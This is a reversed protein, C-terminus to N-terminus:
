DVAILILLNCLVCTALLGLVALIANRTDTKTWEIKSRFPRLRVASVTVNVVYGLSSITAVSSGSSAVGAFLAARALIGFM